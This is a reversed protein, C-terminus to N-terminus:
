LCLWLALEGAWLTTNCLVTLGDSPVPEQKGHLCASPVWIQLQSPLRPDLVGRKRKIIDDLEWSFSIGTEHCAWRQSWAM